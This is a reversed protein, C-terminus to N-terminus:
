CQNSLQLDQLEMITEYTTFINLVIHDNDEM